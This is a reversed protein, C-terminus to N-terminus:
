LERTPMTEALRKLLSELLHARAEDPEALLVELVANLRYRVAHLQDILSLVVPVAEEGLALDDRLEHILRARAVDVDLYLREGDHEVAPLLWGADICARIEQWSVGVRAILEAERIMTAM